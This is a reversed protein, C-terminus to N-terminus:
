VPPHQLSLKIELIHEKSIAQLGVESKYELSPSQIFSKHNPVWIDMSQMIAAADLVSTTKGPCTINTLYPQHCMNM